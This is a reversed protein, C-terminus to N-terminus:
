NDKNFWAAAAPAYRLILVITTNVAALLLAGERFFESDALWTPPLELHIISLASIYQTLRLVTIVSTIMLLRRAWGARALLGFGITLTYAITLITMPSVSVDGNSMFFLLQFTNPSQWEAHPHNLSLAGIATLSVARLFEFVALLVVMEPYDVAVHETPQEDKRDPVRLATRLGEDHGWTDGRSPATEPLRLGASIKHDSDM